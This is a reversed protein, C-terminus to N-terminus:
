GFIYKDLLEINMILELEIKENYHGEIRVYWGLFRSVDNVERKVNTENTKMMKPRQFQKVSLQRNRWSDEMRVKKGGTLRFEKYEELQKVLHPSFEELLLRYDEGQPRTEKKVPKPCQPIFEPMQPPFLEEWWTQQPLYEGFRGVASRYNHKTSQKVLGLGV